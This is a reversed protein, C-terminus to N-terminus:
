GAALNPTAAPSRPAVARARTLWVRQLLTLTQTDPEPSSWIARLRDADVLDDEVGTGDWEAALKRAAEGWLVETFSAKTSRRLVPSPLLDGVLDEMAGSRSRHRRARPLQALAALFRADRLPSVVIVGWDAALTALGALGLELTPSGLLHRYRRRWRLPEGVADAALWREVQRRAAPRLWPFLEPMRHVAVARKVPAPALALAVRAADRPEPRVRAGLVDLPRAWASRAFAEDGGIGTLVAGGSAAEFIPAHFYTNCPWLVGHRQLVAGAVPGVADLESALEIRAWEDLGLHAVVQEQWAAEDTDAASRFRHTVPVPVPLGERRAVAVAVALVASSDRGGSFSVLCPSRRLAPLIAAELAARPTAHPPPLAPLPARGPLPLGAAIELPSLPGPAPM